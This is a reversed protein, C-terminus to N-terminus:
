NKKCLYAVGTADGTQVLLDGGKEAVQNRMANISEAATGWWSWDIWVPGLNKCHDGAKEAVTVYEAKSDLTRCSILTLSM